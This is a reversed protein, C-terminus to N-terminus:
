VNPGWLNWLRSNLLGIVDPLVKRALGKHQQQQERQLEAEVKVKHGGSAVEDSERDEEATAEEEGPNSEPWAESGVEAMVILPSSDAVREEVPIKEKERRRSKATAREASSLHEEFAEIAQHILERHPSSDWRFWYTTYCEFCGCDFSPSKHLPPISKKPKNKKRNTITEDASKLSRTIMYALVERDQLSLVSILTLIAAPLLLNLSSVPDTNSPSHSTSSLSFPSSSSSSSSPSPHVKGKNKSKNLKM